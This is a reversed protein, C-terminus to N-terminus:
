GTEAIMTSSARSSPITMRSPFGRKIVRGNHVAITPHILDSRLPRLRALTRDKTSTPIRKIADTLTYISPRGGQFSRM